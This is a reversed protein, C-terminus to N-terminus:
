LRNFQAVSEPGEPSVDDDVTAFNFHLDTGLLQGKFGTNNSATCTSGIHMKGHNLGQELNTVAKNVKGVMHRFQSHLQQSPSSLTDDRCLLDVFEICSFIRIVVAHLCPSLM